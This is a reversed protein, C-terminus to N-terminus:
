KNDSQLKALLQRKVSHDFKAEDLIAGKFNAGGSTLGGCRRFDAGSLDADSFDVPYVPYFCCESFNAERLCSRRFSIGACLFSTKSFVLGSLDREDLSLPNSVEKITEMLITNEDRFSRYNQMFCLNLQEQTFRPVMIEKIITELKNLQCYQAEKLLEVQERKTQPLTEEVNTDDRLYNLIHRYHTGDRDIFYAGDEDTALQHRGSFMIALMSDPQTRLTTLSTTYKHGGVNLKVLSSQFKQIHEMSKKEDEWQQRGTQMDTEVKLKKEEIEKHQRETEERLKAEAAMVAKARQNIEDAFDQFNTKSTQTLTDLEEVVNAEWTCDVESPGGEDVITFCMQFKPILTYFNSELTTM